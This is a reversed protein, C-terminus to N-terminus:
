VVCRQLTQSTTLDVRLCTSWKFLRSEDSTAKNMVHHKHLMFHDMLELHLVLLTDEELYIELLSTIAELPGQKM